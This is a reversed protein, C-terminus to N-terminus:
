DAKEVLLVPRVIGGLSLETIQTHDVRVAITNKGPQLATTVDLEFPTRPKAMNDRPAKMGAAVPKKPHQFKEPVAVKEGNVYVESKGDVETFFLALKKHKEPVDITTRYWFVTNRDFGQVDLPTSYTAVEPWAEDKFDVRHFGQDNGTDPEDFSFRWRDPLVQLLRNPAATIAAGARVFPSLFRELYATGYERNALDKAALPKLRELTADYERRAAAFDGRNMEECITRYSRASRLGEQHLAVRQEYVASGKVANAAQSLLDACHALFGPTYIQALGFFSGAHTKLQQQAADIGMWYAQMLPAAKPGYFKLWYDEMIAAADAHPNYALRVSLYIQPGYIHWNSLVEITMYSLGRGAFYPFEKQCASFKFMPLTADALNYMYNYYGLRSAVAAWGETMTVQQERSACGPHGIPHLRCYRIPAIMACLNPALKRQVTPPQTYDAYCYFSLVSQPHTKAVRRGIWDFFDLYRNTVAVTGSSPERAEPDDQVKCPECQCYARGDTPSLSPNLKGSEIAKIVNAAFHERLGPNSTCLWGNNKRQGDSGMAFFEPHVEFDAPTVYSGWVHSHEFPTGGAGNWAKWLRATWAPGKPNRWQLGPTETINVPKISLTTARPFVEGLPGDMLYRCGLEELFRCVAKLTAAESQGGILVRKEDAVIRMGERSASVIDELKLGAAMAAKGVHIAPVGNAAKDAVPLEVDTIKKVWEVLTRVALAEDSEAGAKKKFVRGKVAQSEEALAVASVIIAVPKGDRV